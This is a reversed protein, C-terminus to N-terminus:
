ADPDAALKARLARSLIPEDAGDPLHSPGPRAPGRKAGQPDRLAIAKDPDPPTHLDLLYGDRHRANRELIRLRIPDTSHLGATWRVVSVFGNPFRATFVDPTTPVGMRANTVRAKNLGDLIAAITRLERTTFTRVSNAAQPKPTPAPPRTIRGFPWGPDYDPHDSYREAFSVLVARLVFWADKDMEPSESCRRCLEIIDRKAQVDDPPLDTEENLRAELFADIAAM